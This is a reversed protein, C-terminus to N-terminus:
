IVNIWCLLSELGHFHIICYTTIICQKMNLDVLFYWYTGNHGILSVGLFTSIPNCKKYHLKPVWNLMFEKVGICHCLKGSM